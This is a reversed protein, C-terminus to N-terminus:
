IKNTRRWINMKEAEKILDDRFCPHALGILLEARQWTPKGKLQAVGYETVVYDIFTRGTTVIGGAPLTPVIRSHLNGERDTYSSSLCLFSKGGKSSWCGNVFDVQGGSGSIQRIGSSESCAQSFLDMMVINNISVFNDNRAIVKADNTHAGCHSAMNPNDAMFDYMEQTGLAFTFAMKCRDTTKYRGNVIGAEFLKVMSDSFMETHIGLDRLDSECLLDGLLNPLGGIGLQLCARDPIRKLIMEAMAREAASPKAPAPITMLPENSGEIIHDVLSIHVADESGGPVRPINKNVELITTKAGLCSELSNVNTPGFSFMGHEDMPSVQQVYIDYPFLDSGIIDHLEGFQVPNYYMLDKDHLMRDTTDFFWSNMIFHEHSADMYAATREYNIGACGTIQVNQLDETRKMLAVDFDVPRGLFVGYLVHDGSHVLQAASEASICKERYEQQYT